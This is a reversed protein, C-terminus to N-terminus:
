SLYLVIAKVCCILKRQACLAASHAIFVGNFSVQGGSLVTQLLKKNHPNRCFLMNKARQGSATNKTSIAPKQIMKKCRSDATQPKKSETQSFAATNKM